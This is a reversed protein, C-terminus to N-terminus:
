FLGRRVRVADGEIRFRFRRHYIVAGLVSFLLVGVGVLLCSVRGWGLEFVAM